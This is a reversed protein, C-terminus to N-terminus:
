DHQLASNIFEVPMGIRDAVEEPNMGQDSFRRVVAEMSEGVEIIHGDPDYFRVVRQGWPQEKIVHVFRVQHEMLKAQREEIRDDEFYLEHNHCINPKHEIAPLNLLKDFHKKRHLAFDGEFTVNDGLDLKEKQDLVERYFFRAKDLDEVVLLPCIYKVARM